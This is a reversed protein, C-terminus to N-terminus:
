NTIRSLLTFLFSLVLLTLLILRQLEFSKQDLLHRLEKLSFLALMGSAILTLIRHELRLALLTFLCIMGSILSEWTRIRFPIGEINNFPSFDFHLVLQHYVFLLMTFVLALTVM